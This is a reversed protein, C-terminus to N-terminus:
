FMLDGYTICRSNDTRKKERDAWCIAFNTYGYSFVIAVSVHSTKSIRM